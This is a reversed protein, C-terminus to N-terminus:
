LRNQIGRQAKYKHMAFVIRNNCNFCLAIVTFVHLFYLMDKYKTLYEGYQFIHIHTYIYIYTHTHTHTHTHLILASVSILAQLLKCRHVNNRRIVDTRLLIHVCEFILAKYETLM